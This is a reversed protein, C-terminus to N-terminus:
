VQQWQGLHAWLKLFKVVDRFKIAELAQLM